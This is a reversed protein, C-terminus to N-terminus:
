RFLTDENNAGGGEKSLKRGNPEHVQLLEPIYRHSNNDAAVGSRSLRFIVLGSCVASQQLPSLMRVLPSFRHIQPAHNRKHRAAIAPQPLADAVRERLLAGMDGDHVRLAAILRFTDGAFERRTVLDVRFGKATVNGVVRGHIPQDALDGPGEATEIDQDVVGGVVDRDGEAIEVTQRHLDPVPDHRGVQRSRHAQGLGDSRMTLM